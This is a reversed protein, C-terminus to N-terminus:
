PLIRRVKRCSPQQIDGIHRDSGVGVFYRGGPQDFAQVSIRGARDFGEQFQRSIGPQLDITHRSAAQHLIHVVIAQQIHDGAAPAQFFAHLVPSVIAVPSERIKRRRRPQM